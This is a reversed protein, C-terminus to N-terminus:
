RVRDLASKAVWGEVQQAILTSTNADANPCAIIRVRAARDTMKIVEVSCGKVLRGYAGQGDRGRPVLADAENADFPVSPDTVTFFRPEATATPAAPQVNAPSCSVVCLLALSLVLRV